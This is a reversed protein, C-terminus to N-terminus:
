NTILKYNNTTNCITSTKRTNRTNAHQEHQAHQAHQAHHTHMAFYACMAHYHIHTRAATTINATECVGKDDEASDLEVADEKNYIVEVETLEILANFEAFRFAQLTYAFSFLFKKM